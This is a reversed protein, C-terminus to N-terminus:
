KWSITRFACEGVGTRWLLLVSSSVSSMGSICNGGVCGDSSGIIISEFGPSFGSSLLARMSSRTLASVSVSNFAM